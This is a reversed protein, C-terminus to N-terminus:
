VISESKFKSLSIDIKSTFMIQFLFTLEHMVLSCFEFAIMDILNLLSHYNHIGFYAISM